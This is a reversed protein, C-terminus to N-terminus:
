LLYLYDVTLYREKKLSLFPLYILLYMFIFVTWYRLILYIVTYYTIILIFLVILKVSDLGTM